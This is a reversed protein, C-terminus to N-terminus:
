SQIPPASIAPDFPLPARTEDLSRQAADLRRKLTWRTARHLILPPVLGILFVALLLVPLRTDLVIGSWLRITVPTWNNFAFVVGAVALVVWFITRLFQM